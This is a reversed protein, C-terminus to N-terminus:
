NNILLEQIKGRKKGNANINRKALVREIKYKEYLKDFFNNTKDTNVDSNSLLWKYKKSSLEDCFIKLEVQNKDEFDKKTYSTFNSTKSIPKYPPDLYVFVNKSQLDNVSDKFDVNKIIVKQLLKEVLLLNKSDCILPKKYSGIPANFSNKKNVRYLGNFCTKNLFIFLSAQILNNSTRKNFMDRKDYYFESKKVDDNLVNYYLQQLMELNLILNNVNNKIQNYVNMLDINLDNIVVNEVNEYKQLIHFLVAGGGVFPEVYTFNDTIKFPIRKDIEKLLQTKGGLWKVFPKAKPSQVANKIKGVKHEKVCDSLKM